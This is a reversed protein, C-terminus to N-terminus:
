PARCRDKRESGPTYYLDKREAAPVVDLPRYEYRDIRTDVSPIARTWESLRIGGIKQDVHETVFADLAQMAPRNRKYFYGFRQFRSEKDDPQIPFFTRPDIPRWKDGCVWADLRFDISYTDARPFLCTTETFFGVARLGRWQPPHHILAIFYIVAIAVLGQRFWRPGPSKAIM